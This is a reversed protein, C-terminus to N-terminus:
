QFFVMCASVLYMIITGELMDHFVLKFDTCVTYFNHHVTVLDQMYRENYLWALFEQSQWYTDPGYSGDSWLYDPKYTNILDHLEPM